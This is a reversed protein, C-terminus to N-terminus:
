PNFRDPWRWRSVLYPKGTEYAVSLKELRRDAAWANATQVDRAYSALWGLYLPTMSGLLHDRSITRLRHALAFDFVIRVWLEDPMLFQEPPLRALKGLEFMTAPPLVLSWIERLDRNGLQFTEVMHRIDVTRNTDEDIDVRDGSSPISVSGRVRQWFAANREMDLFIPSLIQSLLSSINAWDPPPYVRAGVNVECVQMNEILATPALLIVPHAETRGGANKARGLVKQFLRQSVGLDPGLPNNIRKGYLCRTLPSLISSNLLGDFKHRAYHPVVLDFNRELLPQALQWPWRPSAPMLKSAIVYCARAQLKEGAALVSQYMASFNSVSEGAPDSKALLSPMFFLSAGKAPETTQVTEGSKAAPNEHLVAIRLSDPLTRLSDCIGVLDNVDLEALIGVVMDAADIQPETKEPAQGPIADTTV